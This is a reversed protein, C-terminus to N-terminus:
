VFAYVWDAGVSDVCNGDSNGFVHHHKHYKKKKGSRWLFVGLWADHYFSIGVVNIDLRCGRSGYKEEKFFYALLVSDKVYHNNAGNGM